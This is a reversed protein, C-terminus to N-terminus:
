ISFESNLGLKGKEGDNIANFLIKLRDSKGKLLALTIIITLFSIKNIIYILHNDFFYKNSFYILNRMSYYQMSTKPTDLLPHFFINKGDNFYNSKEIDNLECEVILWIEGGALLLPHTFAYDDYYLFYNEDPLNITRFVKKHFYLGGYAAANIKISSHKENNIKIIFKDKISRLIRIILKQLNFGLFSNKYGLFENINNKEITNKYNPRDKRYCSLMLLKEKDVIDNNIWFKQLEILTDSNPKNDDDLLWIFDNPLTIAIEIGKKFGGASGKNQNFSFLTILDKYKKQLLILQSKSEEISGNDIIVISTINLLLLQQVVQSLLYYRNGYTVLVCTVKM